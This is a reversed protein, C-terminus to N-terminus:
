SCRKYPLWDPYELDAEIFTSYPGTEEPMLLSMNYNLIRKMYKTSYNGSHVEVSYKEHKGKNKIPRMHLCM